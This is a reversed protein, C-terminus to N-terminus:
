GCCRAGIRRCGFALEQEGLDIKFSLGAIAGKDDCEQLIARAGHATLIGIIEGVTKAVAIETTYNLLAM